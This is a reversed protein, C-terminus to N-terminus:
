PYTLSSVPRRIPRMLSGSRVPQKKSELDGRGSGLSLELSGVLLTSKPVVRTRSIEFVSLAICSFLSVYRKRMFVLVGVVWLGRLLELFQRVGVLTQGVGLLTLQIVLKTLFAQLMAAATTAHVGFIQERLEEAAAAAAGEASHESTAHTVGAWLFGPRDVVHVLNVEFIDVLTLHGLQGELLGNDTSATIATATLLTSDLLASATVTATHLSHHALHAGHDLAELCNARVAVTFSLGNTVLVAALLTIALLGDNLALHEVDVNVLTHAIAVLNLEATLTVLHGTDHRTIDHKLNLLLGVGAELALVVVEEVLSLNVQKGSKGATSDVNLVKIFPPHGHVDSGALNDNRTHKRGRVQM